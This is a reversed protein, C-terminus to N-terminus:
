AAASPRAAVRSRWAELRPMADSLPQGVLGGFEVFSFLAIDALTFRDGALWDASGLQAEIAALGEAAIAKLDAAGEAGVVRMRPEFMQRGEAGRFGTTMPTTVTLDIRRVLMRVTAREEPTTGILAPTPQREELYECIAITESLATGDDLVLLPTTGGRHMTLYPEKRNEGAVIDVARTEITMGKEAAFMRVVRPNPGISDYLIM